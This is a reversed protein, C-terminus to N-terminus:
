ICHKSADLSGEQSVPHTEFALTSLHINVAELDM